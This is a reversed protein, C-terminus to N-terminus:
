RPPRGSSRLPPAPRLTCRVWNANTEFEPEPNGNERLARRATSLGFGFRQALGLVRMAEALSPNRYDVLGLSGFTEPTVVGYPGGPSLIELRDPFWCVRIYAATGEYTRHLVANRLIQEFATAAYTSRRRERPGSTFDVSTRNHSAFKDEMRRVVSAIPGDCRMADLVEEDDRGGVRLFQAYAGPLFHQPQRGLVLVGALTPRPDSASLIMRAAALRESLTRDNAALTEPDVARPLYEDEFWRPNLDQLSANPVPRSDFHPDRYRRKENLVREDQPGAIARRPGIRIWITGRHRLPPSDSPEVLIVAVPQGRLVRRQVTMTPPPVLHGDTRMDSLQRLLEDTIALGTPSGDDHVGVFIVGTQRSGPLDNAMACIAQRITRPADGRLSAKREVRDSEPAALLAALEQDTPLSTM